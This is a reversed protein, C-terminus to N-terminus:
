LKLQFRRCGRRPLTYVLRASLADSPSFSVQTGADALQASGAPASCFGGRLQVCAGKWHVRFTGWPLGRGPQSAFRLVIYIAARM